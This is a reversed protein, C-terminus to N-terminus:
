VDAGEACRSPLGRISGRATWSLRDGDHGPAAAETRSAFYFEFCNESVQAVRFCGGTPDIEYITCLTGATVSWRGGIAAASEAYALRGDALYTETFPRGSAYHGDLTANHFRKSIDQESMWSQACAPGAASVISAITLATAAAKCRSM